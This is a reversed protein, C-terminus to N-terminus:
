GMSVSRNAVAGLRLVPTNSFYANSYLGSAFVPTDRSPPSNGVFNHRRDRERADGPRGPDRSTRWASMYVTVADALLVDLRDRLTAEKQHEEASLVRNAALGRCKLLHALFHPVAVPSNAELPLQEELDAIRRRLWEARLDPDQGPPVLQTKSRAPSRGSPAIAALGRRMAHQAKYPLVYFPYPVVKSLPDKLTERLESPLFARAKQYLFMAAHFIRGFCRRGAEMSEAVITRSDRADSEIMDEIAAALRQRFELLLRKLAGATLEVAEPTFTDGLSQQRAECERAIRYEDTCLLDVQSQLRAWIHWSQWVRSLTERQYLKNMYDAVRRRAAPARSGALPDRVGITPFSPIPISPIEIPMQIPDILPGVSVMAQLSEVQQQLATLETGWVQGEAFWPGAPPLICPMTQVGEEASVAPRWSLIKEQLLDAREANAEATAQAEALSHANRALEARCTELDRRVVVLVAETKENRDRSEVLDRQLLAAAEEHSKTAAAHGTAAVAARARVNELEIQMKELEGRKEMIDKKREGLQNEMLVLDDDRDGVQKELRRKLELRKEDESARVNAIEERLSTITAQLGEVQLKLNQCQARESLLETQYAEREATTAQLREELTTVHARFHMERKNGADITISREDSAAQQRFLEQRLRQEETKHDEIQTQLGAIAERLKAEALTKAHLEDRHANAEEEARDFRAQVERRREDAEKLARETELVRTREREELRRCREELVLVQDRSDQAHRANAECQANIRNYSAQSSERGAREVLHLESLEKRVRELKSSLDAAENMLGLRVEESLQLAHKAEDREACITQMQASLSAEGEARPLLRDIDEALAASNSMLVAERQRARELHLRMRSLEDDKAKLEEELSAQGVQLRQEFGDEIQVLHERHSAREASAEQQLLRRQRREAQLENQLSHITEEKARLVRLMDDDAGEFTALM